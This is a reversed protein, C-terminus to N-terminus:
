EWPMLWQNIHWHLIKHDTAKEIRPIEHYLRSSNEHIEKWHKEFEMNNLNQGLYQNSSPPCCPLPRENLPNAVEPLSKIMDMTPRFGHFKSNHDKWDKFDAFVIRDCIGGIPDHCGRSCKRRDDYDNCVWECEELQKLLRDAAKRSRSGAKSRLGTVMITCLKGECNELTKDTRLHPIGPHPLFYRLDHTVTGPVNEREEDYSSLSTIPSQARRDKSDPSSPRVWMRQSRRRHLMQRRSSGNCGSSM